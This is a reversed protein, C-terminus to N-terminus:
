EQIWSGNPGQYGGVGMVDLERLPLDHCFRYMVHEMDIFQLAGYLSIVFHYMNHYREMMADRMGGCFSYLRTNFQRTSWVTRDIPNEINFYIVPPLSRMIVMHAPIRHQQADLDATLQYRGSIKWVRDQATLDGLHQMAQIMAYIEGPTKVWQGHDDSCHYFLKVTPDDHMTIVDCRLDILGQLYRADIMDPSIDSILIRAPDFHSQISRITLLTQQYREDASFVGYPTNIASTVIFYDSVTCVFYAPSIEHAQPGPM